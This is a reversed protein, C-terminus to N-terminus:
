AAYGENMREHLAKAFFFDDIGKYAPNWTLYKVQLGTEEILEVTRKMAKQVNPNSYLDMDFAMVVTELGLAKLEQLSETLGRPNNVGAIALFPRGTLANAVDAKLGGETLYVKSPPNAPDIGVHHVTSVSKTCGTRGTESGENGSAFRLYRRKGGFMRLEMMGIRGYLDQYPILIGQKDTNVFRSNGKTYFGAVDTTDLGKPVLIRKETVLSKFGLREIDRYSLGRERLNQEHEETLGPLYDLLARYAADRREIPAIRESPSQKMMKERRRRAAERKDESSGSASAWMQFLERAATKRDTPGDPRCQAYLDVLGGGTGCRPCNWTNKTVNLAFHTGKDGDPCLPCPINIEAGSHRVKGSLLGCQEAVWLIDFPFGNRAEAM